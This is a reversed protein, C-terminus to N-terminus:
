CMQSRLDSAKVLHAEKEFKALDEESASSRHTYFAPDKDRLGYPIRFAKTEEFPYTFENVTGRETDILAYRLTARKTIQITSTTFTYNQYIPETITQPTAQLQSLAEERMGGSIGSAVGQLLAGWPNASRNVTSDLQQQNHQQQAQYYKARAVEYAPNPIQRQGVEVTSSIEKREVIKRTVSSDGKAIVTIYNVDRLEALSAFEERNSKKRPVTLDYNVNIQFSDGNQPTANDELEIVITKLKPFSSPTFGAKRIEQAFRYKDYFTKYPDASDALRRSVYADSLSTLNAGSLFASFNRKFAELQAVSAMKISPQLLSFNSAIFTSGNLDVPYERFFSTNAFHDYESFAKPASSNCIAILRARETELENRAPSAYRKNKLLPNEDYKAIVVEGWYIASRISTWNTKDPLLESSKKLQTIAGQLEPEFDQNITQVLKTIAKSHKDSEKAFYEQEKAYYTVAEATKGQEVLAEFQPGKSNIIGSLFSFGKKLANGLPDSNSQPFAIHPTCCALLIALTACTKTSSM